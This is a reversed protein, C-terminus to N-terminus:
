KLYRIMHMETHVSSTNLGCPQKSFIIGSLTLKKHPSQLIAMTILAIYSYPPKVPSGNGGGGNGNGGADHSSAKDGSDNNNDNVAAAAAAVAAMDDYDDDASDVNVDTTEASGVSCPPSGAAPRMAPAAAAAGGVAGGRLDLPSAVRLQQQQQQM